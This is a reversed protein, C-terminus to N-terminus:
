RWNKSRGVADAFRARYGSHPVNRAVYSHEPEPRVSDIGSGTGSLALQATGLATLERTAPVNIQRGSIDALFQAFYPNASLGGDISVSDNSPTLASMADLVETARLAIGELVAQCLDAATTELGMGLWLGAASRDWHPCALGSLAPVFVLGREIAPQAAFGNIEDFDRFLGLTRLWNVASGANYVGGDLAYVPAQGHLRWAITPLIGSAANELRQPGAVTLCFAGTGFTIKADGPGRCGHGFLAAQQDVIAATVPIVRGNVNVEGFEGTSSRIEPLVEIPVGFLQCLDTDWQLTNLNMLSTRSATTVDTAYVGGLRDLFFADTTGMRLRGQNLLTRAETNHEIIWALKSASFYADLPLGARELTLQEAGDAKLTEIVNQTRTDQWVIANSVPRGNAADWAVVTEGQNDIGIAQYDVAQELLKGINGLLQEPDHEVRGPQPYIQQHSLAPLEQIAGDDQLVLAKTATTGQDIALVRM